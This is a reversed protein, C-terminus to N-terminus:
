KQDLLGPLHEQGDSDADDSHLNDTLYNIKSDTYKQPSEVDARQFFINM